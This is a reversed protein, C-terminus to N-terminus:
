SHASFSVEPCLETAELFLELNLQLSDTKVTVLASPVM